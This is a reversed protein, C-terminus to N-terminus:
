EVNGWKWKEAWSSEFYLSIREKTMHVSFHTDITLATPLGSWWLLAGKPQLLYGMPNCLGDEAAPTIQSWVQMAPLKGDPLPPFQM